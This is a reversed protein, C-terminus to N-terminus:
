ILTESKFTSLDFEITKDKQNITIKCGSKSISNVDILDELLVMVDKTMPDFVRLKEDEVFFIRGGGCGDGIIGECVLPSNLNYNM